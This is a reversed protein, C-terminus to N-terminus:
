KLLGEETLSKKLKMYETLLSQRDKLQTDCSPSNETIDSAVIKIKDGPKLETRSWQIHEFKENDIGSVSIKDANDISILVVGRKVSVSHKQNNIYCEFGKM